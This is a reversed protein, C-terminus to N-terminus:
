YIIYDNLDNKRYYFVQKKEKAKTQKSFTQKKNEIEKLDTRRKNYILICIMGLLIIIILGILILFYIINNRKNVKIILNNLVEINEILRIKYETENM